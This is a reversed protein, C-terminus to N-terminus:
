QTRRPADDRFSGTPLAALLAGGFFGVVTLVLPYETSGFLVHASNSQRARVDAVPCLIRRDAGSEHDALQAAAPKMFFGCAGSLRM